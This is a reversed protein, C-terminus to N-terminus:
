DTFKLQLDNSKSLSLFTKDILKISALLFTSILEKIVSLEDLTFNLM